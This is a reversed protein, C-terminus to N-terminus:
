PPHLLYSQGWPVLDGALCIGLHSLLNLPRRLTPEVAKKSLNEINMSLFAGM